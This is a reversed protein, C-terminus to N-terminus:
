LPLSLADFTKPRLCYALATCNVTKRCSQELGSSRPSGFRLEGAGPARAPAAPPQLAGDAGRGGASAHGPVQPVAAAGGEDARRLDAGCKSTLRLQTQVSFGAKLHAVSIKGLSLRCVPNLLQYQNERSDTGKVLFQPGSGCRVTAPCTTSISRAPRAGSAPATRASPQQRVSRRCSCCRARCRPSGHRCVACGRSAIRTLSALTSQGQQWATTLGVNSVSCVSCAVSANDSCICPTHM